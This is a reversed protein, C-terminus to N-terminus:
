RCTAILEPEHALGLIWGEETRGQPDDVQLMAGLREPHLRMLGEALLRVQLADRIGPQGKVLPEILGPWIETFLFPRDPPEFPWVSVPFRGRLRNLVPLGMLVQSGVAGAYALQWVTFAGKALTECRRRDPFPNRYGSKTRSLGPVERKLGHGWFPGCFAGGFADNAGLSLNIQGALDFRNNRGPTDEIRQSLWEWLTFVGGGSLHQAVGSPYGFPFDFGILLRESRAMATAMRDSLWDFAVARNRCYVPACGAEGIWIADKCPTPGRDNGGSWDVMIVADFHM